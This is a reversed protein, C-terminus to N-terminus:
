CINIIQDMKYYLACGHIPSVIYVFSYIYVFVSNINYLEKPDLCKLDM